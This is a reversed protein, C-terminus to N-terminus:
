TSGTWYFRAMQPITSGVYFNSTSKGAGNLEVISLREGPHITLNIRDLVKVDTNPYTFSVNKFEITHPRDEVPYCNKTIAPPYNMFKVYEYAYNTRKVLEQINGILGQTFSHFMSGILKYISLFYLSSSLKSMILLIKSM